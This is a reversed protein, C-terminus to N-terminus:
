ESEPREFKEHVLYGMVWVVAALLLFWGIEDIRGISVLLVRIGVMIGGMIFLESVLFHWRTRHTYMGSMFALGTLLLAPLTLPFPLREMDTPGLMEWVKDLTAFLFGFLAGAVTGTVAHWFYRVLTKADFGM